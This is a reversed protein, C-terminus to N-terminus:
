TTRVLAIKTASFQEAFQPKCRQGTPEDSSPRFLPVYWYTLVIDVNSLLKPSVSGQLADGAHMEDSDLRLILLGHKSQMPHALLEDPKAHHLHVLQAAQQVLEAYDQWL